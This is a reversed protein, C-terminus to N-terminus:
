LFYSIGVGYFLNKSIRISSSIDLDKNKGTLSEFLNMKVWLEPELKSDPYSTPLTIVGGGLLSFGRKIPFEFGFRNLYGYPVTASVTHLGFLYQGGMYFGLKSNSKYILIVSQDKPVFLSASTQAKLGFSLIAFLIVLFNKM